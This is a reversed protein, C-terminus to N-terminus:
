ARVYSFGAEQARNIAVVLAPVLIVDPLLSSKLDSYVAEYTESRQEATMRALRRLATNCLLFTVGRKQLPAVGLPGTGAFVNKVVPEKTAPDNIGSSKGIAYKAWAADNFGIALAPGHVGIVANVEGPKANFDQTYADLYNSAMLMATEQAQLTHFFQRHKGKSAKIWADHDTDAMQDPEVDARASVPLGATMAALAAVAKGLFRRRPQRSSFIESM